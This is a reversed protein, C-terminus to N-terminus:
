AARNPELLAIEFKATSTGDVILKRPGPGVIEGDVTM